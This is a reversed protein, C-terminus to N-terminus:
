PTVPAFSVHEDLVDDPSAAGYVSCSSSYIFREVEADRALEGLRVSALHNIDYTCQPNLDGLADNSIAALQIVADMGQLDQHAVDRLDRNL